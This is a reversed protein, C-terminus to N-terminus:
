DGNQGGYIENFSSLITSIASVKSACIAYDAQLSLYSMLLDGNTTMDYPMMKCHELLVKPIDPKVYQIQTEYVTKTCGCLAFLVVIFIQYKM